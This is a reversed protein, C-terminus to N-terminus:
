EVGEESSLSSESMIGFERRKPWGGSGTQKFVIGEHLAIALEEREEIPQGEHL